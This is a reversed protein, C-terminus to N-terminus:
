NGAIMEQFMAEVINKFSILVTETFQTNTVVRGDFSTTVLIMVKSAGSPMPEAWFRWSGEYGQSFGELGNMDERFVVTEYITQDYMKYVRKFGQPTEEYNFGQVDPFIKPMEFVALQVIMDVVYGIPANVDISRYVMPPAAVTEYAPMEIMEANPSAYFSSVDVKQTTKNM